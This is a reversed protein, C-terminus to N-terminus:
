KESVPLDVGKGQMYALSYVVKDAWWPCKFPRGQKGFGYGVKWSVNQHVDRWKEILTM